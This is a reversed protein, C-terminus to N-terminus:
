LLETLIYNSVYFGKETLFIRDDLVSMYECQIFRKIIDERGSVFDEGFRNQYDQLSFGHKLRLALMVYEYKQEELNITEDYDIPSDSSIYESISKTNGYRRGNFYSYASVGVGIYEQDKWYKLNHKSEFGPKAYNSIEYHLYGNQLLFESAMSYMDCEDDETPLVLSNGMEFFPTGEELILGYVSLHEPHLSSVVKLTELFSDKTQEPIGYMLDVNINSIGEARMDHLAKKFDEFDHMRGLKKLENKHISQLGISFRNVGLSVFESIKERSTTGPNAEMAFEVADSVAFTNKISEIIKSLEDPSLLTPTGGGFFITDIAIEKKSYGEIERCLKNIYACRTDADIDAFSCFDCYNCKRVCFPIHVYLGIQNTKMM